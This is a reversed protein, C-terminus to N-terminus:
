RRPVVKSSTGGVKFTPTLIPYQNAEDFHLSFVRQYHALLEEPKGHLEPLGTDEITPLVSLDRILATNETWADAIRLTNASPDLSVPDSFWRGGNAWRTNEPRWENSPLLTFWNLTQDTKTILRRGDASFAAYTVASQHTIPKGLPQGSEADWLQATKRKGHSTLLLRGDASFVAYSAPEDQRLPERLPKSSETDWLITDRNSVTILRRGNSSFTAFKVEDKHQIPQGLPQGSIADWLRATKDASATVLRRGDWSFSAYNVSYQHQMPHGLPEGSNADWVRVINDASVTALRRGDLSFTVHTILTQHRMAKGQPRGSISDWIQIMNNITTVFRKADPSFSFLRIPSQQVFTRGLPESEVLQWIRATNDFSATLLHREDPSFSANHVIDQHVMPNGLPQASKADWLRASHDWSVTLIRQGDASFKAHKVYNHHTMPKGIPEGSQTGWLQATNDSSATLVLRGDSSFTASNVAGKHAMAKGIPSGTTADWLRATKDDSATLIKTGDPSFTAYNVRDNHRMPKGLPKGSNADWLRVSNDFSATVARRGDPSFAAHVVPASHRMPQGLPKGRDSYEGNEGIWLRATNDLSATLIRQGNQSFTVYRVPGGHQMKVGIPSGDEADWLRVSKDRSATAIWREDPSFVAYLVADEHQMSGGLSQGSNADWLQATGDWSATLVRRRDRSSAAHWVEDNHRLTATIHSLNGALVDRAQLRNATSGDAALAKLWFLAAEDRPGVLAAMRAKRAWYQGLLKNAQQEQGNITRLKKFAANPVNTDAQEIQASILMINKREDMVLNWKTIGMALTLIGVVAVAVRLRSQHIDKPMEAQVWGDDFIARYIRNRVVLRAADEPDCVLLGCLKLEIISAVLPQDRVVKGQLAHHYIALTRRKAAADLSGIRRRAIDEFHTATTRASSNIFIKAVTEDVFKEWAADDRLPNIKELIKALEGFICQTLYPHGNTWYLVRTLAAHKSDEVLGLGRLLVKAEEASFDTLNVSYGINFPTRRNDKMLQAPSAVGALLFTLRRFIPDAARANQCQRIAAFFDDSFSLPITADIEDIAIVWSGTSPELFYSRLFDTFRQGPPIRDRANWWDQWDDKVMFQNRRLADDVLAYILGAYWDKETVACTILDQKAVLIGEKQLHVFTQEMLSSKGVKRSSLMIAYKRERLANQLASDAARTIYCPSDPPLSGSADYFFPNPGLQTM